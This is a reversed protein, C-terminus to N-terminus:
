VSHVMPGYTKDHKIPPRFVQHQTKPLIPVSRSRKGSTKVFMVPEMDEEDVEEDSAMEIEDYMYPVHDDLIIQLQEAIKHKTVQYSRFMNPVEHMPVWRRLSIEASNEWESSELPTMYKCVYYRTQYNIRNSGRYEEIILHQHPMISLPSPSLQSEEMWERQACRFESENSQKRGKPFGWEQEEFMVPIYDLLDSWSFPDETEEADVVRLQLQDSLSYSKMPLHPFSIFISPPQSHIEPAIDPTLYAHIHEILESQQLTIWKFWAHCVKEFQSLGTQFDHRQLRMPHAPFTRMWLEGFHDANKCAYILDREHKSMTFLLYLISDLHTLSFHGRLFEMYSLTHNRRVMLVENCENISIIGFSTVPRHCERYYHGIQGCNNCIRKRYHIFLQADRSERSERKSFFNRVSLTPRSYAMTGQSELMDNRKKSTYTGSKQPIQLRLLLMPM